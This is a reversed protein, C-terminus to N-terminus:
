PPSLSNTATLVPSKIEELGALRQITKVVTRLEAAEAPTPQYGEHAVRNRVKLAHLAQEIEVSHAGTALLVVAVQASQTERDLFSQIARKTLDSTSTLRRAVVLELASMVEIFAQRYEGFDLARTANGLLQVETSVDALCRTRQFRRWDEETLYEAYGRGPPREPTIMAGSNTPLFRRWDQTKENWWLLGLVSSCYTGLTSRRSDWPRLEELWYQGYQNRLTNLFNSLRPRLVAIVRKALAVYNPDDGADQGFPENLAKPNRLLSALEDASVDPMLMEGRLPGGELKAQRRMISEDFQSGNRDWKLFGQEQKATRGFWVRIEYPDAEPTLPVADNKGDPVFRHFLPGTVKFGPVVQSELWVHFAMRVTEM